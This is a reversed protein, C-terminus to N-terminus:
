PSAMPWSALQWRAVARGRQRGRAWWAKPTAGASQAAPAGEATAPRRAQPGARARASVVTQHWRDPRPRRLAAWPSPQGQAAQPCCSSGKEVAARGVAVWRWGKHHTPALTASPRKGPGPGASPAQQNSRAQQTSALMLTHTVPQSPGSRPPSPCGPWRARSSFLCVHRPRRAPSWRAYPAHPRATAAMPLNSWRAPHRVDHTCTTVSQVAAAPGSPSRRACGNAGGRSRPASEVCLWRLPAGQRPSGSGCTRGHLPDFVPGDGSPAAEGVLSPALACAVNRRHAPGACSSGSPGGERASPGLACAVCYSMAGMLPGAALRVAKTNSRQPVRAAASGARDAAATDYAAAM